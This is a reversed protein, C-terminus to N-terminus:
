RRVKFNLNAGFASPEGVTAGAVSAEATRATVLTRSGATSTVARMKQLRARGPCLLLPIVNRRGGLGPPVMVVGSPLPCSIVNAQGLSLRVHHLAAVMLDQECLRVCGRSPEQPGQRPWVHVSLVPRTEEPEVALSYIMKQGVPDGIHRGGCRRKLVTLPEGIFCIPGRGKQAHEGHVIQEVCQYM